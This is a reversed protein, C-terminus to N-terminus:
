RVTTRLPMLFYVGQEDDGHVGAKHTEPQAAFGLSLKIHYNAKKDYCSYSAVQYCGLERARAIASEQLETGIGRGRSAPRVAFVHIKAEMLQGGDYQLVPCHAEPGIPQLAFRIAGAVEGAHLAVILHSTYKAYYEGVVFPTQEPAVTELFRLFEPVRPHDDNWEEFVVDDVTKRTM